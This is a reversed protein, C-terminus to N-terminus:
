EDTDGEEDEDGDRPAWLTEEPALARIRRSIELCEVLEHPTLDKRKSWMAIRDDVIAVCERM